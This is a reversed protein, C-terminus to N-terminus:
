IELLSQFPFPSLASAASPTPPLLGWEALQLLGTVLQCSSVFGGERPCGEELENAAGAWLCRGHHGSRGRTATHTDRVAPFQSEPGPETLKPQHSFRESGWNRGRCHQPPWTAGRRGQTSPLHCKQPQSAAICHKESAISM